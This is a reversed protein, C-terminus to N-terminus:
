PSMSPEPTRGKSEAPLGCGTGGMLPCHEATPGRTASQDTERMELKSGSAQALLPELVHLTVSTPVGDCQLM